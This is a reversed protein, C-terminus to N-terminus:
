AALKMGGWKRSWLLPLPSTAGKIRGSFTPNRYPVTSEEECWIGTVPVALAVM